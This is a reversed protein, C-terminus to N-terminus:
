ETKEPEAAAGAEGGEAAAEPFAEEKIAKLQEENQVLDKLLKELKDNGDLKSILDSIRQRAEYLKRLPEVQQIISGPNFDDMSKFKLVVSLLENEGSTDKSLKNAVRVAVRPNCSALVQNFNDRDINVFRRNKVLPLPEDPSPTGTLNAMVGVVFPLEKEINAGNTEVDYTIHVRPARVRSLKHQSSDSM